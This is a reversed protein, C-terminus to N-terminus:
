EYIAGMTALLSQMLEKDCVIKKESKYHMEIM